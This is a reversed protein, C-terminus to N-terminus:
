AVSQWIQAQEASGVHVCLLGQVWNPIPPLTLLATRTQNDQQTSSLSPPIPLSWEQAGIFLTLEKISQDCLGPATMDLCVHPTEPPLFFNFWGGNQRQCPVSEGSPVTLRLETRVASRMWYHTNKGTQVDGHHSPNQLITDTSPAMM